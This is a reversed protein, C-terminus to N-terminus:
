ETVIDQLPINSYVIRVCVCVRVCELDDKRYLRSNPLALQFKRESFRSFADQRSNQRLKTIGARM